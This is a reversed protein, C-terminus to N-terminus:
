LVKEENKKKECKEMYNYYLLHCKAKPKVFGIHISNNPDTNNAAKTM